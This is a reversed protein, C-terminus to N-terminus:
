RTEWREAAELVANSYGRAGDDYGRNYARLAAATDGEYRDLLSGLYQMGHQINEAPSLEDPFYDRNLQCLGYCQGNDAGEQFRSEVEILGLALSFPVGYEECCAALTDALHKDLPIDSDDPAAPAPRVEPAQEPVSLRREWKLPSSVPPRTQVEGAGSCPGLLVWLAILLAASVQAAAAAALLCAQGDNIGSASFDIKRRM